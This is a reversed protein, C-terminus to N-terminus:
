HPSGLNYSSASPPVATPVPKFVCGSNATLDAALIASNVPLGNIVPLFLNSPNAVWQASTSNLPTNFVRAEDKIFIAFSIRHSPEPGRHPIPSNFKGSFSGPLEM